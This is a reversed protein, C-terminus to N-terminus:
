PAALGPGASKAPEPEIAHFHRYDMQMRGDPLPKLVDRFRYGFRLANADWVHRAHVTQATHGDIATVSAILHVAGKQLDELSLGFLPSQEDIVHLAQWSLLFVPSYSRELEVEYFRRFLSGDAMRESKLVSVRLTAEVLDSGRANAMRFSLVQQRGRRMVVAVESFLVQATPKAFKAFMLGSAMAFGLVGIFAQVTVLVNAYLTKPALVGYGLTGLTQVSFFFADGFSGPAAGAICDGGLLYLGAFLLHTVLYLTAMATLVQWWPARILWHYLDRSARYPSGVRVVEGFRTPLDAPPDQRM